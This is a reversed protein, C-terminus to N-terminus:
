SRWGNRLFFSGRQPLDDVFFGWAVWNRLLIRATVGLMDKMHAMLEAKVCEFLMFPGEKPAELYTVLWDACWFLYLCRAGYVQLDLTEILPEPDLQVRKLGNMAKGIAHALASMSHLCCWEDVFGVSILELYCHQVFTAYQYIQSTPLLDGVTYPTYTLTQEYYTVRKAILERPFDRIFKRAYEMNEEIQSQLFLTIGVTFHVDYRAKLVVGDLFATSSLYMGKLCVDNGSHLIDPPIHWLNEAIYLRFRIDRLHQAGNSVV